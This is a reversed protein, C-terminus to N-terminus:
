WYKQMMTHRDGTWNRELVNAVDGWVFRFMYPYPATLVVDAREGVKAEGAQWIGDEDVPRSSEDFTYVDADIWPLPWSHADAKLVQNENNYCRSWAIGGHETAWYSNIYNPCIASM